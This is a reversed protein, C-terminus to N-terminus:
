PKNRAAQFDDVGDPIHIAYADQALAYEAYAGDISYGTNEQEPCLTEWGSICFECHGCTSHLWTM